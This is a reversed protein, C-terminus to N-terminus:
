PQTTTGDSSHDMGEMAEGKGDEVAFEVKVSGAKEFVLTVPVMDGAKPAAKMDMFMIHLGGKEFAVTQGAPIAVEPQETMTAMGSADVSSKHVQTMGLDSSASLLKDDASGANEIMMYGGAVKANEAPVPIMPHQITLDGAKFEHAIAPLASGILLAALPLALKLM